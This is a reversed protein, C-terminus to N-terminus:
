KNTGINEEENRIHQRHVTSERHKDLSVFIELRLNGKRFWQPHLLMSSFNNLFRFCIPWIICSMLSKKTHLYSFFYFYANKKFHFFILVLFTKILYDVYQSISFTEYNFNKHKYYDLKDFKHYDLTNLILTWLKLFHLLLM